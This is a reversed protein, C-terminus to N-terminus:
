EIVCHEPVPIQKIMEACFTKIEEMNDRLHIWLRDGERPDGAVVKQGESNPSTDPQTETLKHNEQLTTLPPGTEPSPGAECVDPEASLDVGEGEPGSDSNISRTRLAHLALSKS